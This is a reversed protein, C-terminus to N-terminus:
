LNHELYDISFLRMNNIKEEVMSYNIENDDEILLDPIDEESVFCDNLGTLIRLNDMRAKGRIMNYISFFNNNFLISFITGHFSDTVVYRADRFNALWKEITDGAAVKGATLYRISCGLKEAVKVALDNKASTIDLFYAFVFPERNLPVSECLDIYDVKTLLMTPDLVWKADVGLNEKLLPVSSSERVSLAAFQKILERLQATVEEKHPWKYLAISPAYAIRPISSDKAFGCFYYKVVDYMVPRWIQDSGVVLAEVGYRRVDDMTLNPLFDTVNIHETVFREMGVIRKRWQGILEPKDYKRGLLRHAIYRVLQEPYVRLWYRSTSMGQYEAPFRLTIPEHGMRKLVQQLAWNQLTGGYNALLPM